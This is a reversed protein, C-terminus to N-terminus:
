VVDQSGALFCALQEAFLPLLVSQDAALLRQDCSMVAVTVAIGVLGGARRSHFCVQGESRYHTVHSHFFVSELPLEPYDLERRFPRTTPM